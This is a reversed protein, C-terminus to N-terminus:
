RIESDKRKGIFRVTSPLLYSSSRVLGLSAPGLTVVYWLSTPVHSSLNHPCHGPQAALQSVKVSSLNSNQCLFYCFCFKLRRMRIVPYGRGYCSCYYSIFQVACAHYCWLLTVAARETLLKGQRGMVGHGQGGCAPKRGQQGQLRLDHQWLLINHSFCRFSM